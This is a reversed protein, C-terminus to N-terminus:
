HKRFNRKVTFIQITGNVNALTDDKHLHAHNITLFQHNALPPPDYNIWHLSALSVFNITFDLIQDLISM